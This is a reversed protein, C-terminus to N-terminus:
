RYRKSASCGFESAQMARFTNANHCHLNTKKCLSYNDMEKKKEM